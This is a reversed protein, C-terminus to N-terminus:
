HTLAAGDQTPDAGVTATTAVATRVATAWGAGLTGEEVVVNDYGTVLAPIHPHRMANGVLHMRGVHSAMSLDSASDGIAVADQAAIGRRALDFRVAEGKSVGDPVLHYVHPQVGLEPMHVRAILGNDRLRLWGFGREALWADAEAVDVVGRLMIDVERNRHWPRHLDLRGPYRETIAEILEEPVVTFADPMAGRLLESCRGHDWAVIAGLEAIFGDAGFIGAAELLQPRTRGSVLVLTIGAEHMDVLARAPELTFTRDETLFFSGGPGVMTGDLDSYIVRVSM